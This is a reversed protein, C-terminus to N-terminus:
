GDLRNGPLRRWTMYQRVETLQGDSLRALPWANLDSDIIEALIWRPIPSASPADWAPRRYMIEIMDGRQLDDSIHRIERMTRLVLAPTKCNKPLRTATSHCGIV